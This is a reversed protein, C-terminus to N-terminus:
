SCLIEKIKRQNKETNVVPEGKHENTTPQEDKAKPPKDNSKWSERQNEVEGQRREQTKGQDDKTSKWPEGQKEIATRQNRRPAGANEGSRGQHIEM